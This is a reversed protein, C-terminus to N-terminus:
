KYNLGLQYHWLTARGTSSLKRVHRANFTAIERTLSVLDERNTEMPYITKLTHNCFWERIWEFDIPLDARM